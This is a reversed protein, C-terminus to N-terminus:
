TTVASPSRGTLSTPIYPFVATMSSKRGLTPAPLAPTSSQGGPRPPIPIGAGPIQMTRTTKPLPLALIQQEDQRGLVIGADQFVLLIPVADVDDGTGM